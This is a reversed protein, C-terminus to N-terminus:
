GAKTVLAAFQARNTPDNAFALMGAGAIMRISALIRRLTANREQTTLPAAARAAEQASDAAKIATVSAKMATVDDDIIGFGAAETPNATARDVIKQLAATVDKVTARSTRTGVGYALLVDKDPQQGKVASRAATVLGYGTALASNQAATFQMSGDHATIVTPVVAGVSTLDTALTALFAATIRKGLQVQNTVALSQAKLGRQTVSTPTDKPKSTALAKKNAM